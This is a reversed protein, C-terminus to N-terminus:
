YALRGWNMFGKAAQEAVITFVFYSL